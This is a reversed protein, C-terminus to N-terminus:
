SREQSGGHHSDEWGPSHRSHVCPTVLQSSMSTYLLFIHLWILLVHFISLTFAGTYILRNIISQNTSLKICLNSCMIFRGGQQHHKPWCQTTPSVGCYYLVRQWCTGHPCQWGGAAPFVFMRVGSYYHPYDGQIEGVDCMAVYRILATSTHCNCM